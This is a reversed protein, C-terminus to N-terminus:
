AKRTENEDAIEYEVTVVIEGANTGTGASRSIILPEGKPVVDASAPATEVQTGATKATTACSIAGYKTLSGRIGINTAQGATGTDSAVYYYTTIKRVRIPAETCVIDQRMAGGASVDLYTSFSRLRSSLNINKSKIM